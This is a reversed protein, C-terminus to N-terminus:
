LQGLGLQEWIDAAAIGAISSLASYSETRGHNREWCDKNIQSIKLITSYICYFLTQSLLVNRRADGLGLGAGSIELASM